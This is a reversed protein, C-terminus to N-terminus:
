AVFKPQELTIWDELLAVYFETGNRSVYLFSLHSEPMVQFACFLKSRDFKFILLPERNVQTAQRVTQEWWVFLQPNKDTLVKSSLHDDKYNKCEVCWLNEANPVYLDGKLMHKEHLAGSGPTRQWDLGTLDKLAKKVITEGRSGKDRSDVM